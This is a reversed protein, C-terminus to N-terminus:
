RGLKAEEDDEVPKGRVRECICMLIGAQNVCFCSLDVIVLIIFVAALVIAIILVSSLHAEEHRYVM